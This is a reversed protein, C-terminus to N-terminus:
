LIVCCILMTDTQHAATKSGAYSDICLIPAILWVHLVADKCDKSSVVHM